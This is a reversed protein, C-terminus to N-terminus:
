DYATGPELFLASGYFARGPGGLDTTAWLPLGQRWSAPLDPDAGRKFRLAATANRNDDGAYLVEVGVSNFTASLVPAGSIVLDDRGSSSPATATRFTWTVPAALRNGARDQAASLTATHDADLALLVNPDLTATRSLADYRVAAPVPAGGPGVLSFALSAPQVPESFTVSLPAAPDVGTAGDAPTRGVVQPPTTDPASTTFLVDVWYNSQRFSQTPFQPPGYAFVGNPGDEGDALLRLPGGPRGALFYDEDLAYQGVPAYYSAVYTTNAAIPVPAAFRVQQWGTATETAFFANALLLGDNTWLHAAHLGTNGPGKYFRLGTVQGPVEARFRVGLEVGGATVAEADNEAPIAPTAADSWVTCPCGYGLDTTPTDTPTDTPTSTPTDTPTATATKTPTQTETPTHTPTQTQTPTHTPTSTETPTQTPTSTATPTATSTATATATATM